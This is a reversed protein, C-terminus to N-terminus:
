FKSSSQMKGKMAERCSSCAVKRKKKCNKKKWVNKEWMGRKTVSLFM